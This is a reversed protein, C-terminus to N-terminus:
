IYFRFHPKPDRIKANSVLIEGVADSFKITVPQSEGLRCANYNLKTLGFIDAAVHHIDADGRQIEIGLPAPVEAGDYTALRPKYGSGWLYARRSDVRWFTGRMVPMRGSRLMRLHNDVRVRVGVLRADAPAVSKFGGWEESDLGSRCHLFIEELPDSYNARYTELVGALLEAAADRSLHFERRQESWWPGFRGRFVVGDGSDVFLQAACCATDGGRGQKRYALGVYCVGRRATKIRWPKAGAKYYLAVGLNWARDSLPTLQRAGRDVAPNLVLTSERVLQVPLDLAMVRAKLQRRFDESMQYVLPDVRDFLAVQGAKAAKRESTTLREGIPDTVRSEPRCNQFVFDPVVCVATQVREDRESQATLAKMYVDVVAGTRRHRDAHRAAVALEDLDIPAVFTPQPSLASGFAAEFGPFQPWLRERAADNRLPGRMAGFFQNAAAIGDNTGVIGYSLSAPHHPREADYPGFLSLGDHPSLATQGLGFELEPEPLVTVSETMAM